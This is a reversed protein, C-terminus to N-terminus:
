PPFQETIARYVIEAPGGGQNAMLISNGRDETCRGPGLVKTPQGDITIAVSGSSNFDNCVRMLWYAVGTRIQRTQGAALDISGFTHGYYDYDSDARASGAALAFLVGLGMARLSRALSVERTGRGENGGAGLMSAGRM